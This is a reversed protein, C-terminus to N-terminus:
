KLLQRITSIYHAFVLGPEHLQTNWRKVWELSLYGDYGGNKLVSLCAEIPVDGEGTLTYKVNELQLLSDKIHVHRIYPALNQYTVQPSEGFFRYPHHIDWLVGVAPSNVKELLSRLKSSDAYVGNTEVLLCIGAAKATPASSILTHLVQNEDVPLTPAPEKDALVRIYRVGLVKALEIYDEIEESCKPSFLLAGSTLCSIELGMGSMAAKTKEIRGALFPRAKPMYMDNEIGRVEIGDYGLDKASAIIEAFPWTPCGLTSFSIKM